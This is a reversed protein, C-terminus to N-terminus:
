HRCENNTNKIFESLENYEAPLLKIRQAIGSNVSTNRLFIEYFDGVCHHETYAILETNFFLQRGKGDTYFFFKTNSM